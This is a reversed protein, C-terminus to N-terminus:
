KGFFYDWWQKINSSASQVVSKNEANDDATTFPLAVAFEGPKQLNLLQRAQRQKYEASKYYNILDTIEKNKGDMSAIESELGAIERNIQARRYSEKALYFVIFFLFIVGVVIVSRSKLLAFRM